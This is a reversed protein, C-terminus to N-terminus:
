APRSRRRSLDGQRSLAAVFEDLELSGVPLELGAIPDPLQLAVRALVNPRLSLVLPIGEGEILARVLPWHGEGGAELPGVQAFVVDLEPRECWLRAEDFAAEIFSWDCVQPDPGHDAVRVRDGTAINVLDYAEPEEPPGVAAQLFGGVM